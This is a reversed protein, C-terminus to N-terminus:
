CCGRRIAVKVADSPPCIGFTLKFHLRDTRTETQFAALWRLRAEFLCKLSRCEIEFHLMHSLQIIQDTNQVVTTLMINSGYVLRAWWRTSMKLCEQRRRRRSLRSWWWVRTSSVTPFCPWEQVYLHMFKNPYCM